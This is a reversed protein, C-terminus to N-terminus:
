AKRKFIKFKKFQRNIMFFVKAKYFMASYVSKSNIEDVDVIVATGKQLYNELRRSAIFRGKKKSFNDKLSCAAHAVCLRNSVVKVAFTIGGKESPRGDKEPRFHFFYDVHM